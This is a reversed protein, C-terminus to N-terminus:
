IEKVTFLFVLALAGMILGSAFTYLYNINWLFGQLIGGGLLAFSQTLQFMGMNRGRKASPSLENVWTKLSVKSFAATIGLILMSPTLYASPAFVFFACLVLFLINAIVLGKRCGKGSAFKGAPVAFVSYAINYLIYALIGSSVAYGTNKYTLQVFSIFFLYNINAASFLGAYIFVSNLKKGDSEAEGSKGSIFKERLLLIPPLAIFSIAAGAFIISKIDFGMQWMIYASLTGIVAGASDMAKQIGFAKGAFEKAVTDGILSDRPAIRLGKGVREGSRSAALILATPSVAMLLKSLCSMLYGAFILPKRKGTKDSLAGSLYHAIGQFVEPLNGALGIAFGGAGLAVLFAPLVAKIMESSIDTLLSVAGLLYINTWM